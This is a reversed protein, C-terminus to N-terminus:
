RWAIQNVEPKDTLLPRGFVSPILDDLFLM